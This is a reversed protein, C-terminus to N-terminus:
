YIQLFNIIKIGALFFIVIMEQVFGKTKESIMPGVDRGGRRWGAVVLRTIMSDVAGVNVIVM